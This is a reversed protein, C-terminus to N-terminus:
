TGVASSRTRSSGKRDSSEVVSVAGSASGRTKGGRQTKSGATKGVAVSDDRVDKNEELGDADPESPGAAEVSNRKNSRGTKGNQAHGPAIDSSSIHQQDEAKAEPSIQADGRRASARSGPTPPLGQRLRESATLKKGGPLHETPQQAAHCLSQCDIDTSLASLETQCTQVYDSFM